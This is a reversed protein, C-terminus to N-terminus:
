KITILGLRVMIRACNGFFEEATKREEAPMAKFAELAGMFATQAAAYKGTNVDALVLSLNASMNNYRGTALLRPVEPAIADLRHGAAELRDTISGAVKQMGALDPTFERSMEDLKRIDPEVGTSQRIAASESSAPRLM